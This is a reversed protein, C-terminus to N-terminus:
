KKYKVDKNMYGDFGHIQMNKIINDHCCSLCVSLVSLPLLSPFIEQQPLLVHQNLQWKICIILM